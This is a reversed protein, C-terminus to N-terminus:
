KNKKKIKKAQNLAIAIAQSRSTVKPGSKSGSHLENDKFERMTQSIKAKRVAKKPSEEMKKIKEHVKEDKKMARDATHHSTEKNKKYKAIKKAM